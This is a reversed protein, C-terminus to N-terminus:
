DELLKMILSQMLGKETKESEAILLVLATLARDSIKTEGGKTLQYDNLTLLIIFLLAGIRKNGDVFPREKIVRYLLNAARAAVTGEGMLSQRLIEEGGQKIRGFSEEEDLSARMEKVFRLAEIVSLEKKVRRGKGLAIYGEGYEGIVKFSGGYNAMVELAGSAEGATLINHKLLRKVVEMMGEVEALKQEPLEKLRRENVVVGGMVYRKLIKTSWVRFATAKKSNVRYGVSIIMDLNYKAVQRKVMRGGEVRVQANKACTTKEELEGDRYINRIHRNIVSRDIEFVQAMQEQTAWLTEAEADVDFVVEGENLKYIELNAVEEM